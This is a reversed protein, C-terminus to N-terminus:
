EADDCTFHLVLYVVVGLVPFAMILCACPPGLPGEMLLPGFLLVGGILVMSMTFIQGGMDEEMSSGQSSLLVVSCKIESSWM